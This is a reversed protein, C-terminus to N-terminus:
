FTTNLQFYLVKNEKILSLKLPSCKQPFKKLPFAKKKGYFYTFEFVLYLFIVCVCVCVCLISFCSLIAFINIFNQTVHHNLNTLEQETGTVIIM